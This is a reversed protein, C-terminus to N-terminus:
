DKECDILPPTGEAPQSAPAFLWLDRIRLRGARGARLRRAM